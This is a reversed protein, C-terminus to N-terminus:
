ATQALIEDFDNVRQEIDSPYNVEFIRIFPYLGPTAPIVGTSRFVETFFELSNVVGESRFDPVLNNM